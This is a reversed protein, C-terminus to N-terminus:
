STSFAAISMVVVDVVGINIILFLRSMMSVREIIGECGSVKRFLSLVSVGSGGDWSRDWFLCGVGAYDISFAM